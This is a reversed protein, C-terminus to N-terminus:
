SRSMTAKTELFAVLSLYKLKAEDSTLETNKWADWKLREAHQLISPRPQTPCPGVTAIKYCAYLSLKDDDSIHKAHQTWMKRVMEACKVFLGDLAPGTPPPDMTKTDDGKQEVALLAQFCVSAIGRGVTRVM